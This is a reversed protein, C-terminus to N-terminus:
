SSEIFKLLDEFDAKGIVASGLKERQTRLLQEIQAFINVEGDGAAVARQAGFRNVLGYLEAPVFKHEAIKNLVARGLRYYQDFIELACEDIGALNGKIEAGRSAFEQGACALSWVGKRISSAHGLLTAFEPQAPSLADHIAAQFQRLSDEGSHAFLFNKLASLTAVPESIAKVGREQAQGINEIRGIWGRKWLEVELGNYSDQAAENEAPLVLVPRELAVADFISGSRDSVVLSSESILSALDARHDYAADFYRSVRQVLEPEFYSTGHHFKVIKPGPWEFGSAQECHRLVAPLSSDAGYTPLYLLTPATAQLARGQQACNIFRTAGISRTPAFLSNISQDYAGFCLILDFKHSNSAFSFNPKAIGYPYKVLIEAKIEFFYPLYPLLAMKCAQGELEQFRIVPQSQQCIEKYTDLFMPDWQEGLGADPVVFCYTLGLEKFAPLVPSLTQFLMLNHVCLAVDFKM